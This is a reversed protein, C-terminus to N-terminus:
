SSGSSAHQVTHSQDDVPTSTSCTDLDLGTDVVGDLVGDSGDSQVVLVVLDTSLPWLMEFVFQPSHVLSAALTTPLHRVVVHVLLLCETWGPTQKCSMNKAIDM